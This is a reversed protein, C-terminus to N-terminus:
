NGHLWDRTKSSRVKYAARLQEITMREPDTPKFGGSPDKQRRHYQSVTKALRCCCECQGKRLSMPDRLSCCGKSFWVESDASKGPKVHSGGELGPKKWNHLISLHPAYTLGTCPSSDGLETLLDGLVALSSITGKLGPSLWHPDKIKEEWLSISYQMTDYSVTVKLQATRLAGPTDYFYLMSGTQPEQTWPLVVGPVVKM